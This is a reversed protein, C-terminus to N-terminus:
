RENAIRLSEKSRDHMLLDLLQFLFNLQEQGSSGKIKAKLQNIQLESTKLLTAM